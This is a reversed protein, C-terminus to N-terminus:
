DKDPRSKYVRVKGDGCGVVIEGYGDGDVDAVAPTMCTPLPLQWLIKGETPSVAKIASLANGGILFEPRGDNDVDATITDSFSNPLKLEWKKEGTAANYCRFMGGNHLTGTELQGDGDVDALGPHRASHEDRGPDFTWLLKRDMTWAGWQGWACCELIELKGDGNLDVPLDTGYATWQTSRDGWISNAIIPTHIFSGDKGSLETCLDLTVFLVDDHGDDNVDAVAPMGTPGLTHHWIVPDSGDNHWLLSGDRGSFAYSQAADNGTMALRAAVYVDLTGDANFDGVTAKGVAPYIPTDVAGPIAARWRMKGQADVLKIGLTGHEAVCAMLVETKGDRDLDACIPAGGYMAVGGFGWGDTQWLVQPQQGAVFPGRYARVTRDGHSAVIEIQGDGDLDAAVVHCSFPRGAPWSCLAKGKTDLRRMISDAGQAVLGADSAALIKLGQAAPLKTETTQLSKGPQGKVLALADAKGDDNTDRTLVPSTPKEGLLVAARQDANRGYYGLPWLPRTYELRTNALKLREIWKGGRASGLRLDTFERPTRSAEAAAIIEPVGDGDVDTLSHVYLGPVVLKDEGTMADYVHLNWGERHLSVVIEQKGDGDIDAIPAPPLHLTYEGQPYWEGFYRRWLMPGEAYKALEGIAVDPAPLPKTQDAHEGASGRAPSIVGMQVAILDNLFIFESKGDGDLDQIGLSGYNRVIGVDKYPNWYLRFLDSGDRANMVVLGGHVAAAVCMTDADYRGASSTCHAYVPGKNFEREWVLKGKDAGDAFSFLQAFNSEYKESVCAIQLGKVDPLLKGVHVRNSGVSGEGQRRWVVEGTRGRVIGPLDTVIETQGDGDIDCIAVVGGVPARWKEQGDAGVCVLPGPGYLTEEQGDDDVDAQMAWGIPTQGLDASWIEQPAETMRCPVEAQASLRNDHGPMPWQGKAAHAASVALFILLSLPILERM